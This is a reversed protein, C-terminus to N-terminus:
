KSAAHATWFSRLNVQFSKSVDKVEYTMSRRSGEIRAILAPANMIRQYDGPSVRAFGSESVRTSATRTVSNYSTTGVDREGSVVELPIPAGEGTVFTIRQLQGLSLVDGAGGGESTENHVFFSLAAIAGDSKQRSVVPEVFVGSSDIHVGGALSKKSIRNWVGTFTTTGSTSFRDDSQEVKFKPLGFLGASAPAALAILLCAAFSHVSKM